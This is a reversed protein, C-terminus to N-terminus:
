LIATKRRNPLSGGCVLFRYLERWEFRIGMGENYDWKKVFVPINRDQYRQIEHPADDFAFSMKRDQFVEAKNNSHVVEGHPFHYQYLFQMTEAYAEVPRATLYTIDYQLALIQLTEAAYPFVTPCLFFQPNERFFSEEVGEILMSGRQRRVCFLQELASNVDCITNCLDVAIMPRRMVDM